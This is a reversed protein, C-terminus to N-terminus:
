LLSVMETPRRRKEAPVVGSGEEFDDNKEAIKNMLHWTLSQVDKYIEAVRSVTSAGIDV